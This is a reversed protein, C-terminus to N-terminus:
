SSEEPRTLTARFSGDSEHVALVFGLQEAAARASYLSIADEPALDRSVLDFGRDLALRRDVKAVLQREGTGDGTWDVPEPEPSAGRALRRIEGLGFALESELATKPATIIEALRSMAALLDAARILERQVSELRRTVAAPDESAAKRRAVELQLSASSLPDALAHRLVRLARSLAEASEESRNVRM